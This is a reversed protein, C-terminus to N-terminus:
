LEQGLIAPDYGPLSALEHGLTPGGLAALLLRLEPADLRARAVHLVCDEDSLPLFDLGYLLAAPETAIGAEAIGSAIASAVQLHGQAHSSYGDLEGSPFGLRSLERDLLRRAESGVERNVWRLKRELLGALTRPRKSRGSRSLLVGERWSAFGIRALSRGSRGEGGSGVPLHVAAAHVLGQDLLRLADHNSCPWWAVTWGSRTAAVPAALLPLAPDCGAVVLSRGHGWLQARNGDAIRGDAPTFGAIMATDGVQPLAVWHDWVEALRARAPPRTPGLSTAVVPRAAQDSGFIQDVSSGLVRALQLAVGLSPSWSGAEAGALAQRSIGCLAALQGQTLGSGLRALRLRRGAEVAGPAPARRAPRSETM